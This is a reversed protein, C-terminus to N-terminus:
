RELIDVSCHHVEEASTPGILFNSCTWAFTNNHLFAPHCGVNMGEAITMTEAHRILPRELVDYGQGHCHIRHEQPRGRSSMFENYRHSASNATAGPRLQDITYLQAERAFKFQDSVRHPVSGFSVSRVIHTYFGAPGNSELLIHVLDGPMIRRGGATKSPIVPADMPGSACLVVAHESGRQRLRREAFLAVTESDWGPRIIERLEDMVADQDAAAARVTKQEEDSKVAIVADVLNSANLQEAHPFAAAIALTLSASLQQMGLLGIAKADLERLTRVVLEGVDGDTYYASACFPTALIREIGLAAADEDASVAKDMDAGHEIVTIGGEVPFVVTVGSSFAPRVGCLYRAYGGFGGFEAQCILVDINHDRMASRVRDHRRARETDSVHFNEM